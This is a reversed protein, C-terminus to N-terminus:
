FLWILDQPTFSVTEFPAFNVFSCTSPNNWKRQGDEIRTTADFAFGGFSSEIKVKVNGIAPKWSGLAPNPPYLYGPTILPPLCGQSQVPMSLDLLVITIWVLLLVSQLMSHKKTQAM